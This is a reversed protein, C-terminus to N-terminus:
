KIQKLGFNVVRNPLIEITVKLQFNTSLSIRIRAKKILFNKILFHTEFSGFGESFTLM